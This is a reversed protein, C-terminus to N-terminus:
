DVLLSPAAFDEVVRNETTINYIRVDLRQSPNGSKKTNLVESRPLQVYSGQELVTLHRGDYVTLKQPLQVTLVTHGSEEYVGAKPKGFYGSTILEKLEQPTLFSREGTSRLAIQELQELSAQAILMDIEPTLSNMSEELQRVTAHSVAIEDGPVFTYFAGDSDLVDIKAEKGVVAIYEPNTQIFGFEDSVPRTFFREFIPSKYGQQSALYSLGVLKELQADTSHYDSDHTLIHVDESSNKVLNNLFTIRKDSLVPQKYSLASKYDPIQITRAIFKQTTQAQPIDIYSAGPFGPLKPNAPVRQTRTKFLYQRNKSQRVRKLHAVVRARIENFPIRKLKFIDAAFAPCAIITCLMLIILKKM